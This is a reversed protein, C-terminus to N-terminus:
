RRSGAAPGTGSRVREARCATRRGTPRRRAFRRPRRSRCAPQRLIALLRSGRLLWSLDLTCRSRSSCTQDHMRGPQCITFGFIIQTAWAPAIARFTWVQAGSDASGHPPVPIRTATLIDPNRCSTQGPRAAARDRRQAWRSAVQATTQSCVASIRRADIDAAPESAAPRAGRATGLAYLVVHSRASRSRRSCRAVVVLWRPRSRGTAASLAEDNERPARWASWMSWAVILVVMAVIVWLAYNSITQAVTVAPQGIAWGAGVILGIYALTGILDAVIFIVFPM